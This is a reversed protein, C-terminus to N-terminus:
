VAEALPEDVTRSLGAYLDNLHDRATGWRYDFRATGSSGGWGDLARANRFRSRAGKIAEERRQVLTRLADHTAVGSANALTTSWQL